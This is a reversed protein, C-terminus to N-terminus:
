RRGESRYPDTLPVLSWLVIAAAGLVATVVYTGFVAYVAAIAALILGNSVLMLRM